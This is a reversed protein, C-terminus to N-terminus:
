LDRVKEFTMTYESGEYSINVSLTKCDWSSIKANDMPVYSANSNITITNKDLDVSWSGTTGACGGDLTNYVFTKGAYLELQSAIQCPTLLSSMADSGGKTVSKIKYFGAINSISVYCKVATKSEKKCSTIFLTASSILCITLISKM